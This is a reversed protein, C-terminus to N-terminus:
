GLKGFFVFNFRTASLEGDEEMLYAENKSGPNKRGPIPKLGAKPQEVSLSRSRPEKSPLRARFMKPSLWPKPPGSSKKPSLLVKKSPNETEVKKSTADPSESSSGSSLKKLNESTTAESPSKKTSTELRIPIKSGTMCLYIFNNVLM